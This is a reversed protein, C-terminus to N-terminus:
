VRILLPMRGFSIKDITHTVRRMGNISMFWQCGKSLDKLKCAVLVIVCHRTCYITIGHSSFARDDRHDCYKNLLLPDFGRMKDKKQWAM